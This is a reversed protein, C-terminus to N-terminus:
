AAMEEAPVNAAMEGPGQLTRRKRQTARPAPATGTLMALTDTLIALRTEQFAIDRQTEEIDARLKDITARANTALTNPDSNMSPM